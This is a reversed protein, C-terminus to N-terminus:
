GKCMKAFILYMANEELNNANKYTEIEIEFM